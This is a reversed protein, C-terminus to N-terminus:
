RQLPQDPGRGTHSEGGTTSAAARLSATNRRKRRRYLPAARRSVGVGGDEIQPFLCSVTARVDLTPRASVVPFPICVARSGSQPRSAFQKTCICYVKSQSRNDSSYVKLLSLITLQVILSIPSRSYDNSNCLFTLSDALSRKTDQNTLDTHIINTRSHLM